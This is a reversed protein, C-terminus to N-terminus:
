AVVPIPKSSSHCSLDGEPLTAGATTAATAFVLGLRGREMIPKMGNIVDAKFYNLDLVRHSRVIKAIATNAADDPAATGRELDM